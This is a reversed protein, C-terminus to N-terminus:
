NGLGEEGSQPNGVIQRDDAETQCGAFRPVAKFPTANSQDIKSTPNQDLKCSVLVTQM